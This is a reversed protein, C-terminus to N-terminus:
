PTPLQIYRAAAVPYHALGAASAWVMVVRGHLLAVRTPAPDAREVARTRPLELFTTGNDDPGFRTDLHREVLRRGPRPVTAAEAQTPTGHRTLVLCRGDERRFSFLLPDQGQSPESRRALDEAGPSVLRRVPGTVAPRNGWVM